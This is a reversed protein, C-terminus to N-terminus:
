VHTGGLVMTKPKVRTAKAGRGKARGNVLIMGIRTSARAERTRRLLLIQQRLRTAILRHRRCGLNNAYGLRLM